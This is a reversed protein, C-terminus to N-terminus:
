HADSLDPRRRRLRGHRVTRPRAPLRVSGPAPWPLKGPLDTPQGEGVLDQGQDHSRGRDVQRAPFPGHAQGDIFQARRQQHPPRRRPSHSGRGPPAGASGLSSQGRGYYRSKGSRLSEHSKGRWLTKGDCSRQGSKSPFEELACSFFNVGSALACGIYSCWSWRTTQPLRVPKGGFVWSFVRGTPENELVFGGNGKAYKEYLWNM